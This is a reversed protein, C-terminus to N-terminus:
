GTQLMMILDDHLKLQKDVISANGNKVLIKVAMDASVKDSALLTQAEYPSIYGGKRAIAIALNKEITHTFYQKKTLNPKTPNSM